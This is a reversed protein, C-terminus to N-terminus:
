LPLTKFFSTLSQQPFFFFSYLQGKTSMVFNSGPNWSSVLIWPNELEKFLDAYHKCIVWM